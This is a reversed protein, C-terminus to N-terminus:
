PSAGNSRMSTSGLRRSCCSPWSARLARWGHRADSDSATSVFAPVLAILAGALLEYARTDTGYFARNPNSNRLALALGVSAVAGAGAITPHSAAAPRAGNPTHHLLHGGFDPAVGSLVAGGGRTVLLARGPEPRHGRRLLGHVFPHLVLEDRVPVRVKFSGVASAVDAPAAIATFVVASVILVVFAAPLLRRFRRSYFRGFRISGRAQHGPAVTADRPLGVPRLVRRRRHVWGSFQSSGAHFLVVLYVAVARLGDLHPRYTETAM